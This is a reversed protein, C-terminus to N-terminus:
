EVLGEKKIRRKISSIYRLYIKRAGENSLGVIKGIAQWSMKKEGFHRLKFIELFELFKDDDIKSGNKVVFDMIESNHDVPTPAPINDSIEDINQNKGILSQCEYKIRQGVYSSFKVNKEPKFDLAYNYIFYAKHDILDQQEVPPVWSYSKVVQYFIGSHRAVLENLASSDKAGKVKGILDVDSLNDTM